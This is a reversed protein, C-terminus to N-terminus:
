SAKWRKKKHRQDKEICESVCVCLLCSVARRYFSFHIYIYIHIYCTLTSRLRIKREEEWLMSLSYWSMRKFRIKGKYINLIRQNNVYPHALCWWFWCQLWEKKNSPSIKCRFCVSSFFISCPKQLVSFFRCLFFFRNM